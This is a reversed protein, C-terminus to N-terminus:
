ILNPHRVNHNVGWKVKEPWGDKYVIFIVGKAMPLGGGSQIRLAM